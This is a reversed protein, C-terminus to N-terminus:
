PCRRRCPSSRTYSIPISTRFRCAAAAPFRIICRSCSPSKFSRSFFSYGLTNAAFKYLKGIELTVNAIDKDVKVELLQKTEADMVKVKPDKLIAKTDKDLLQFQFVLKKPILEINKEINDTEKATSMDMTGRYPLYDALPSTTVDYKSGVRYIM